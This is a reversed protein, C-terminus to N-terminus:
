IYTFVDSFMQNVTRIYSVSNCLESINYYNIDYALKKLLLRCGIKEQREKERERTKQTEGENQEKFQDNWKDQENLVRVTRTRAAGSRSDFRM